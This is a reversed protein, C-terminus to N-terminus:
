AIGRGGGGGRGDGGNRSCGPARRDLEYSPRERGTHDERTTWGNSSRDLTATWGRESAMDSDPGAKRGLAGGEVSRSGLAAAAAFVVQQEVDIPAISKQEARTLDDESLAPLERLGLADAIPATESRGWRKKLKVEPSVAIVLTSDKEPDNAASRYLDVDGAPIEAPMGVVSVGNLLGNPGSMNRAHQLVMLAEEQNDAYYVVANRDSKDAFTIAM